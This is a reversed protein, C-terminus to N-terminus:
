GLLVPAGEQRKLVSVRRGGETSEPKLRQHRLSESNVGIMEGLRRNLFNVSGTNDIVMVGDTAGNIVADLTVRDRELAEVGKRDRRILLEGVLVTAALTVALVGIFTWLRKWLPGFLESQAYAVTTVWPTSDPYSFFIIRPVNDLGPGFWEATPRTAAQAWVASESIDRGAALGPHPAEYGTGALIRGKSDFIGSKATEPFGISMDLAGSITSLESQAVLFGEPSGSDWELPQLFLTFPFASESPVIVDSATFVGTSRAREFLGGDGVRTGIVSPDSSAIVRGTADTAHAETFQPSKNAFGVLYSNMMDLETPDTVSPSHMSVWNIAKVATAADARHVFDELQANVQASKLNVQTIIADHRANYDQWILVAGTVALPIALAFLALRLRAGLHHEFFRM